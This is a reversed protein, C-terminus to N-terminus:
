WVRLSRLAAPLFRRSGFRILELTINDPGGRENALAVLKECARRLPRIRALRRIEHPRVQRTLGDTCLVLADGSQLALPGQVEIEVDEALGLARLIVHASPHHEAETASLVGGRVLEAVLSHDETLQRIQRGRVLFARSDGVHALFADHDRIVLATLTTGMPGEGAALRSERYVAENAIQVSVRLAEPLPESRAAEYYTHHLSEVALRSAVDGRTYGGMGDAVVFLRGRSQLLEPDEPEFAGVFDENRTRVRGIDTLHAFTVIAVRAAEGM